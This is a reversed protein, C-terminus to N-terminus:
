KIRKLDKLHNIMIEIDVEINLRDNSEYFDIITDIKEYFEEYSELLIASLVHHCFRPSNCFMSFNACTCSVMKRGPKSYIRVTDNDVEYLQGMSGDEGVKKVKDHNILYKAKKIQEKM